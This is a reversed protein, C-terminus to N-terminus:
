SGYFYEVKNNDEESDKNQTQNFLLKAMAGALLLPALFLYPKIQFYSPKTHYLKKLLPIASIRQGIEYGSNKIEQHSLYHVSM